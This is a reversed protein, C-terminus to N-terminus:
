LVGQVLNCRYFVVLGLHIDSYFGFDEANSQFGARYTGMLEIHIIGSLIAKEAQKVVSMVM